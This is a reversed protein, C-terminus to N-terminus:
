VFDPFSPDIRIEIQTTAPDNKIDEIYRIAFYRLKEFFHDRHTYQYLGEYDFIATGKPHTQFAFVHGPLDIFGTIAKSSPGGMKEIVAQYFSAPENACYKRSKKFNTCLNKELRRMIYSFNETFEKEKLELEKRRNEEVHNFSLSKLQGRYLLLRKFIKDVGQEEQWVSLWSHAHHLIQLALTDTYPLQRIMEADFPRGASKSSKILAITRGYCIGNKLEGKVAIFFEEESILAQVSRIERYVPFLQPFQSNIGDVTRQLLEENNAILAHPALTATRYKIIEKTYVLEKGLSHIAKVVVHGFFAGMVGTAIFGPVSVPATFGIVASCVGVTMAQKFNIESAM